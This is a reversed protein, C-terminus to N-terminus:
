NHVQNWAIEKHTTIICSLLLGSRKNVFGSLAQQVQLDTWQSVCYLIYYCVQLVQSMLALVAHCICWDPGM